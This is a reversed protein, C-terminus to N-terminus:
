KKKSKLDDPLVSEDILKNWDVDGKLAGVLRQARIMNNMTDLRLDGKGWYPVGTKKESDLLGRM